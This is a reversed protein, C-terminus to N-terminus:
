ELSQERAPEANIPRRYRFRSVVDSGKRRSSCVVEGNQCESSM